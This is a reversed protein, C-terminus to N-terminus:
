RGGAADILAAFLPGGGDEEPHWLVGLVFGAEPDELGEVSGDEAWAVPVLREGLRGPAQHHHSSVTLRGGVIGALRSGPAVRVPHKVFTGPPGRHAAVDDLDQVLDGGRVVNLLQMGRCIALVPLERALAVSLVAQEAADRDLRLGGTAPHPVARYRAPDIDAGGALVLGDLARLAEAPGAPSPPLIVPSGGADAVAAVYAQPLLAARLDWVTFRAQEVYCTIGILPRM